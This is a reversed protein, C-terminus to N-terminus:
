QNERANPWQSKGKKAEMRQTPRSGAAPLATGNWILIKTELLWDLADRSAGAPLYGSM